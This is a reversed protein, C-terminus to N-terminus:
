LNDTKLLDIVDKTYKSVEGERATAAKGPKTAYSIFVEGMM